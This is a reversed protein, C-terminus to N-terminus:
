TVPLLSKVVWLGLSKDAYAGEAEKCNEVILETPEPFNFPPKCMNLPRWDGTTIDRNEDVETFTTTLLYAAGSRRFNRLAEGIERYSLHVLCDRCLILDAEPLPDTVIDSVIFQRRTGGHGLENREVLSRVVDVGIYMVDSLNLRSMWGFDGCPADLLSRIGYSHLLAPLKARIEATAVLESGEGSQSEPSGWINNEYIYEFTDPLDRGVLARAHEKFRKSALVAPRQAVPLLRQM